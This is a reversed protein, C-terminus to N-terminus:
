GAKARDQPRLPIWTGHDALRLRATLGADDFARVLDDRGESFHTWGDYHAPIIEAPGLIAAAAAARISDLSLARNRFRAPVRAAGAHLVVADISPTRRAIEAVTAISANDGSVYVVPLDPGSLIFGIVECNVFGDADREADEPGHVAPVATVILEGGGPRPV